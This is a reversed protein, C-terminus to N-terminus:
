IRSSPDIMAKFLEPFELTIQRQICGKSVMFEKKIEEVLIQFHEPVMCSLGGFTKVKEDIFDELQSQPLLIYPALFSAQRELLAYGKSNKKNLSDQFEVYQDVSEFERNKFIDGHLLVHALEHTITVRASCEDDFEEADIYIVSLNSNIYSRIGFERFLRPIPIVKLEFDKVVIDEINVPIINSPNHKKLFNAAVKVLDSKEIPPVIIRKEGNKKELTVTM